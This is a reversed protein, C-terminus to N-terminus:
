RKMLEDAWSPFFPLAGSAASGGARGREVPITRQERMRQRKKQAGTQEGQQPQPRKPPM